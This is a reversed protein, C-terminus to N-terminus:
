KKHRSIVKSCKKSSKEMDSLEYEVNNRSRNQFPIIVEDLISLNEKSHVIGYNDHKCINTKLFTEENKKDKFLLLKRKDDESLSKCISIVDDSTMYKTTDFIEFGYTKLLYLLFPKRQKPNVGLFDYGSNLCLDIWTAVLFSGINLNRYEDSVNIGIFKCTKEDHDAYFYLYGQKVPEGNIVTFINIYYKPKGSGDDNARKLYLVQNYDGSFVGDSYLISEGEKMLKLFSM